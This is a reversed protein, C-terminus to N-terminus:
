KEVRTVKGNNDIVYILAGRKHEIEMELTDAEDKNEIVRVQVHETQRYGAKKVKDLTVKASPYDVFYTQVSTYASKVDAVATKDYSKKRYEVFRPIAIAALVGMIAIVVLLEYLTFGKKGIM